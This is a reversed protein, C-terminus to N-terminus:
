GYAPIDQHSRRRRAILMVPYRVAVHYFMLLVLMGIAAYVLGEVTTPIAPKFIQWTARAIDADMNKFFVFPREWLSANMIATQAAQLEEVRDVSDTMVGGLKAVAADANSGTQAILRDLTLGSQAAADEPPHAGQAVHPGDAPHLRVVGELPSAVHRRRRQDELPVPVEDDRTAHRDGEGARQRV